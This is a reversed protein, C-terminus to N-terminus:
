AKAIRVGRRPVRLSGVGQESDSGSGEQAPDSNGQLQFAESAPNLGGQGASSCESQVM